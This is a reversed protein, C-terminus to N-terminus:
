HTYGWVGLRCDKVEVQMQTMKELLEKYTLEANKLTDFGIYVGLHKSCLERVSGILGSLSHNCVMANQFDVFSVQGVSM